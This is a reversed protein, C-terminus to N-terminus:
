SDSSNRARVVRFRLRELNGAPKGGITLGRSIPIRYSDSIVITTHDELEKEIERKVEVRIEIRRNWHLEIGDLIAGSKIVLKWADVSRKDFERSSLM